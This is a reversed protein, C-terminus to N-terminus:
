SVGPGYNGVGGGTRRQQQRDPSKPPVCVNASTVSASIENSQPHVPVGAGTASAVRAGTLGAGTDPAAGIVAAVEDGPEAGAPPAPVVLPDNAARISSEDATALAVAKTVAAATASAM